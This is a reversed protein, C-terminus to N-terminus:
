SSCSIGVISAARGAVHFNYGCALLIDSSDDIRAIARRFARDFDSYSFVRAVDKTIETCPLTAVALPIPVVSGLTDEISATASATLRAM